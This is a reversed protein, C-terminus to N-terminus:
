GRRNAPLAEWPIQLGRKAPGRSQIIWAGFQQQIAGRNPEFRGQCGRGAVLNSDLYRSELTTEKASMAVRRGEGIAVEERILALAEIFADNRVGIGSTM